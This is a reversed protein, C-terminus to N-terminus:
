FLSCLKKSCGLKEFSSILKTPVFLYRNLHVDESLDLGLKGPREFDNYLPRDHSFLLKKEYGKECLKYVVKAVESEDGEFSQDICIFCGEKLISELYDVDMRRSAHGFITKEPNVNNKAFIRMMEYAIDKSHSCHAYMPLGTKAQVITRIM